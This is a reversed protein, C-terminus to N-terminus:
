VTVPGAGSITTLLNTNTVLWEMWAEAEDTATEWVAWVAVIVSFLQWLVICLSITKSRDVDSLLGRFRCDSLPPPLSADTTM